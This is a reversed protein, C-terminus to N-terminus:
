RLRIAVPRHVVYRLTRGDRASPATVRPDPHMVDAAEGSHGGVGLAHGLEHAVVPGLREPSALQAEDVAIALKVRSPAGDRLPLTRASDGAPCLLTFASGISLAGCADLEVPHAAVHGVVVEADAATPVLAVALERYALTALWAAAASRVHPALPSAGPSEAVHVRITSGLPWGYVRGGTLSTPDYAPAEGPVTPVDCAVTLLAAPALLAAAALRRGAHGPRREGRM